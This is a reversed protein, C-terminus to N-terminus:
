FLLWLVAKVLFRDFSTSHSHQNRIKTTNKRYSVSINYVITTHWTHTGKICLTARKNNGVQNEAFGFRHPKLFRMSIILPGLLVSPLKPFMHKASLVKGYWMWVTDVFRFVFTLFKDALHSGPLFFVLLARKTTSKNLTKKIISPWVSHLCLTMNLSFVSLHQFLYIPIHSRVACVM